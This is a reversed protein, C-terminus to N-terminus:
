LCCLSGLIQLFVQGEDVALLVCGGGGDWVPGQGVAVRVPLLLPLFGAKTPTGAVQWFSKGRFM